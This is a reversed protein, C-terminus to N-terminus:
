YIDKQDFSFSSCARLCGEECRSSNIVGREKVKTKAHMLVHISKVVAVHSHCPLLSKTGHGTNFDTSFSLQSNNSKGFGLSGIEWQNNSLLM